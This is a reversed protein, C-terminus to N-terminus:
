KKINELTEGVVFDCVFSVDGNDNLRIQGILMYKEKTKEHRKQLIKAKSVLENFLEPDLEELPLKIKYYPKKFKDMMIM